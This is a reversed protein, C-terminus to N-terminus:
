HHRNLARLFLKYLNQFLLNIFIVHNTHEFCHMRTLQHIQSSRFIHRLVSSSSGKSKRETELNAHCDAKLFVLTFNFKKVSIM